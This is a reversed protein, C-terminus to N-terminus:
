TNTCEASVIEFIKWDLGSEKFELFNNSFVFNYGHVSSNLRSRAEDLSRVFIFIKRNEIKFQSFLQCGIKEGKGNLVTDAIIHLSTPYKKDVEERVASEGYMVNGFQLAAFQTPTDYDTIVIHGKESNLKQFDEFVTRGGELAYTENKTFITITNIFAITVLVMTILPLLISAFTFHPTKKMFFIKLITSIHVTILLSVFPIIIVFDRAYSEKVVLLLGLFVFLYNIKIIKVENENVIKFKRDLLLLILSLIILFSISAYYFAVIDRLDYLIRLFNKSGEQGHRGGNFIIKLFWKYSFTGYLNINLILLTLIFTISFVIKEKIGKVLFFIPTFLLFTVKTSVGIGLILGYIIPKLRNKQEEKLEFYLLGYVLLGSTLILFNEPKIGILQDFYEFGVIIFISPFFLYLVNQFIKYLKITIFFIIIAHLFLSFIAFTLAYNEPFEVFDSKIDTSKGALAFYIRHTLSLTWQITSGPHDAHGPTMGYILNIGNILYEYAPDSYKFYFPVINQLTRLGLV